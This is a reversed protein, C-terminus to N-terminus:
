PKGAKMRDAQRLAVCDDCWCGPRKGMKAIPRENHEVARKELAPRMAEVDALTLERGADTLSVEHRHIFSDSLNILGKASLRVWERTDDSTHLSSALLLGRLLEREKVTIRTM